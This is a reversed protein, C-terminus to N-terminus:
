AWCTGRTVAFATGDPAPAEFGELLAPGAPDGGNEVDEPGFTIGGGSLTETLDDPDDGGALADEGVTERAVAVADDQDGTQQYRTLALGEAAPALPGPVAAHAADAVAKAEAPDLGETLEARTKGQLAALRRAAVPDDLRRALALTTPDLRADELESLVRDYHAGYSEKIQQLLPARQAPPAVEIQAVLDALGKQTLVRRDDEPIGLEKQLELSVSTTLERQAPEDEAGDLLARLKPDEAVVAAPDRRRAARIEEAVTRAPAPGGSAEFQELGAAIESEPALRWQRRLRHRQRASEAQERFARAEDAGFDIEMDRDIDPVGPEGRELRALHLTRLGATEAKLARRENAEAATLESRLTERTEEDPLLAEIAGSELAALAQKPAMARLAAEALSRGFRGRVAKNQDEDFRLGEGTAALLGFGREALAALREPDRGAQATLADLSEDVGAQLRKVRTNHRRGRWARDLKLREQGAHLAADERAGEPLAAIRERAFDAFAKLPDSEQAGEEDEPLGALRLGELTLDVGARELAIEEEAKVRAADLEAFEARLQQGQEELKARLM